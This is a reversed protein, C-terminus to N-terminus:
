TLGENGGWTIELYEETSYIKIFNIVSHMEINWEKWERRM